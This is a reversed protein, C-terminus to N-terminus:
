SQRTNFQQNNILDVVSINIAFLTIQQCSICMALESDPPIIYLKVLSVCNIKLGKFLEQCIFEIINFTAHQGVSSPSPLHKGSNILTM